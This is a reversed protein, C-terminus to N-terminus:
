WGSWWTWPEGEVARVRNLTVWCLGRWSGWCFVGSSSPISDWQRSNVNKLASNRCWSFCQSLCLHPVSFKQWIFLGIFRWVGYVLDKFSLSTVLSSLFAITMVRQGKEMHRKQWQSRHDRFKSNLTLCVCVCVCVCVCSQERWTCTSWIGVLRPFILRQLLGGSGFVPVMGIGRM